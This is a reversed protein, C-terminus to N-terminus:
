YLLIDALASPFCSAAELGISWIASCVTDSSSTLRTWWAVADTSISLVKGYLGVTTLQWCVLTRYPEFQAPEIQQRRTRSVFKCCIWLLDFWHLKLMVLMYWGYTRYVSAWNLMTPRDHCLKEFDLTTTCFHTMHARGVGKSMQVTPSTITLTQALDSTGIKVWWLLM